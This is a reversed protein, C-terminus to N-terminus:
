AYIIEKEMKFDDLIYGNGAETVLAAAITFGYKKYAEISGANKKNVFLTIKKAKNMKAVHLVFEVIQRGYGKRRCEKKLYIKSLLFEEEKRLFALYGLDRGARDMVLYYMYGGEIQKEIAKASQLTSLMYEIQEKSVIGNYHETWIEKALGEIKLISGADAAIVIDVENENLEM